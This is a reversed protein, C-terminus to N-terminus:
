GYIAEALGLYQEYQVQRGALWNEPRPALREDLGRPVEYLFRALRAVWWVLMIQHYVWIRDAAAPDAVLRCYHEVVPEWQGAPVALYAPHSMLDAIEFAPDGWGSNEWDVSGWPGPRRIFNLYNPDVRCLAPAVAPWEEFERQEFRGLLRRLSAPRASEPIHAVQRAVLARGAGVSGANLFAPPLSLRTQDPRFSHIAAYHAVLSQWEATSDPPGAMVEGELWGQVVVPQAYRRRELLVPRAALPLGAQSLALLALYERGARDRRDRITFKVAFDGMVGGARYLLNNAGGGIQAVRWGQWEFSLPQGGQALYDLLSYLAKEQAPTALNPL